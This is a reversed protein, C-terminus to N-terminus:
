LGDGEAGSFEVEICAIRDGHALEDAALRTKYVTTGGDRYINAWKKFRFTRKVEVLDRPHAVNEGSYRGDETWSNVSWVGDKLIAGHIPWPGGDYVSYLKVKLGDRTTYEKAMDITM